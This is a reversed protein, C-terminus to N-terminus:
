VKYYYDKWEDMKEQLAREQQTEPDVDQEVVRAADYQTLVRAIAARSEENGDSVEEDVVQDVQGDIAVHEPEPLRLTVLNQDNEDYEDWSLSLHLKTALNSIFNRDRAPFDNPITLSSSSPNSASVFAKVKDFIERQQPTLVPSPRGSSHSSTVDNSHDREGLQSRQRANEMSKVRKAQKGKYWNLDSYEKEFVEEEWAAMEDLVFQLRSTNITGSENLYGDLIRSSVLM